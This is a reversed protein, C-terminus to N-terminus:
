YGISPLFPGRPEQYFGLAMLNLMYVLRLGQQFCWRLLEANRLPVLFGNGPLDDASAILAMLDDNRAAVSHGFFSIGTTYGTIRGDCEVVKASGHSIADRLEGGRDHGHVQACLSNCEQVDGYAADRVEFGKLHLLVPKGQIAALPERTQFGLKTYLSMSGTNYAVQVLRVGLAQREVGRDLVAQMLTRGIGGDHVDPAVTVPGVAFIASREDLFNSGVIREDSEAVVSFIEPHSQLSALLARAPQVAAFDPPFDHRSAITYFAEYCIRGCDDVDAPTMARLRVM